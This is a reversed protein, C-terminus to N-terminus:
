RGTVTKSHTDWRCCEFPSSFGDLLTVNGCGHVNMVDTERSDPTKTKGAGRAPPSIATLALHARRAWAKGLFPILIWETLVDRTTM